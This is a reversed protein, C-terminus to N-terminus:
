GVRYSREIDQRTLVGYVRAIGPVSHSVVHLAEAGRDRILADAEQLSAQMDIPATQLRTAPIEFLDYSEAEPNEKRARVLDVAALLLEPQGDPAM